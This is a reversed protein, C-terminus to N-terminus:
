SGSDVAQSLIAIADLHPEVARAAGLDHAALTALARWLDATRGAGPVPAPGEAGTLALGLRLAGPVDSPLGDAVLRTLTGSEGPVSLQM